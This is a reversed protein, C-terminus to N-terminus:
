LSMALTSLGAVAVLGLASMANISGAGSTSSSANAASGTPTKSDKNNNNAPTPTAGAPTGTAAAGTTSAAGSSALQFPKANGKGQFEFLGSYAWTNTAIQGIRISYKGAAFDNLPYIDYSNASCDVPTAPATVYAVMNANAANGNMLQIDCKLKAENADSKWTILGHQGSVWTSNAWPTII